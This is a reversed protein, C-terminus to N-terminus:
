PMDGRVVPEGGSFHVVRTGLAAAQELVAHIRDGALSPEHKGPTSSYSCYICELNCLNTVNIDIERLDVPPAPAVSMSARSVTVPHVEIMEAVWATPVFGPTRNRRSAASSSGVNSVATESAPLGRAARTTRWCIRRWSTKAR